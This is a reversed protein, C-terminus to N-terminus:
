MRVCKQIVYMIVYYYLAIRKITGRNQGRFISGILPNFNNIKSMDTYASVQAKNNDVRLARCGRICSFPFHNHLTLVEETNHLGKVLRTENTSRFSVTVRLSLM